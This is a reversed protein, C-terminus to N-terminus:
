VLVRQIAAALDEVSFGRELIAAVGMDEIEARANDDLDLATMLLVPLHAIATTAKIQQCLEIGDMDPMRLDSLVVDPVSQALTELATKGNNAFVANYDLVQLFGDLMERNLWDDDVVLVTVTKESSAM